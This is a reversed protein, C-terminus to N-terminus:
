SHPGLSAIIARLAQELQQVRIGMPMTPSMELANQAHELAADVRPGRGIPPLNLIPGDPGPAPLPFPFPMPGTRPAPMGHGTCGGTPAPTPRARIAAHRELPEVTGPENHVHTSSEGFHEM